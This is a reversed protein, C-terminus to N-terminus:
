YNTMKIHLLMDKLLMEKKNNNIGNYGRGLAAEIARLHEMTMAEKMTTVSIMYVNNIPTFSVGYESDIKHFRSYPSQQTEFCLRGKRDYVTCLCRGRIFLYYTPNHGYMIKSPKHDEQYCSLSHVGVINHQYLTSYCSFFIPNNTSTYDSIIVWQDPHQLKSHCLPLWKNIEDTKITNESM